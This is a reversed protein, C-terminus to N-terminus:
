IAASPDDLVAQVHHLHSSRTSSSSFYTYVSCFVRQYRLLYPVSDAAQSCALALRHAICHVSVMSPNLSKLRTAVGSGILDSVPFPSLISTKPVSSPLSQQLLTIVM